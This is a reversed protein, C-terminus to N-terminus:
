VNEKIIFTQRILENNKMTEIILEGEELPLITVTDISRFDLKVKANIEENDFVKLAKYYGNETEFSMKEGVYHLNSPIPEEPEWEEEDRSNMGRTLYYYGINNITFIDGDEVNWEQNNFNIRGGIKLIDNKPAILLPVINSLEAGNSLKTDKVGTLSSKFYAWFSDNVFVNCELVKYKIYDVEKAVNVKEYAFFTTTQWTFYDCVEFDATNHVFLYTEDAGDRDTFVLVGTLEEETRMVTITVSSEHNEIFHSTKNKLCQDKYIDLTRYRDFVNTRQM